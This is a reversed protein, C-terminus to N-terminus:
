IDHRSLIQAPTKRVVRYVPFLGVILNFVYIFVISLAVTWFDVVLLDKFYKITSVVKLIYSMLLIGPVSALTTIAIIEGMFMKYIDKKKVGIARLIGIEKIRSLFSSRIMLFIEVLSIALIIGSVTLSNRITEKQEDLYEEKSSEYSNKVNLNLSRLEGLVNEPKKTAIIFGSKETITKYKLTNNTVLYNDINYKSEYYGVVKLKNNNVKEKITKNLPMEEKHSINVIVEYDNEPLRGKKLEIKDTFLNYDSVQAQGQDEVTPESFAFGGYGEDSSLAIINILMSDDAYISPSGTDVVGVLKFENINSANQLSLNRELFQEMNTIGSMKAVQQIGNIVKDLVMKDVLLEYSNQPMVGYILDEANVLRNSALSGGINDSQRSTQYFDDYKIAFNVISDGPLIYDVGDLAEYNIYDDVKVKPLQAVIYNSNYKIFDEDKINLTGRITSVAYVIFM